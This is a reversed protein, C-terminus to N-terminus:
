GARCSAGGPGTLMRTLDFRAAVRFRGPGPVAVRTFGGPGPRVCARGRTVTWYPTYRVRVLVEGAHDARLTFSDTTISAIDAPGSALDQAGRVAFVRWHRGRFVERLFPAGHSLLGAETRGSRDPVADSLAVYRVASRRLWAWYAAPKLHKAYFLRNFRTDLQTEWGRAMLFRSAVYVSEWRTATPVVEVRWDAPRQGGLFDLLPQYYGATGNPSDAARLTETVPGWWQWLALLAVALAAVHRRAPGTALVVLPGLFLAGLRTVNSGMASPVVFSVAIAGLYLVIGVRLHQWRREVCALAAFCAVSACLFGSVNYPQTGGEPVVIQLLLVPAAAAAGVALALRERAVLGWALAALALFCGAVPSAVACLAALVPALMARGRRAALLAGLGITVGLLFTVRGILLEGLTAVALWRTATRVRGDFADRAILAFLAAAVTACAVGLAPVGLLGGLAPSLLSYGPVHHGGFWANDWLPLGVRNFLNARYVQAALDATAPQIVAWVLALVFAIGAAELAVSDPARTRIIARVQEVAQITTGEPGPWKVM